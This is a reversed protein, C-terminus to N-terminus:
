MNANVTTLNPRLCVRGDRSYVLSVAGDQSVVFAAVDPSAACLRLASRHRMGFAESDLLRGPTPGADFVEFVPTPKIADLVIEAGFGVLSLDAMLVTAGDAGSLHAIFNCAESLRQTASRVELDLLRLQQFRERVTPMTLGAASEVELDRLLAARTLRAGRLSLFHEALYGPADEFCYKPVLLGRRSPMVDSEAGALVLAGGHNLRRIANVIATLINLYTLSVVQRSPEDLPVGRRALEAWLGGIGEEFLAHAGYLSEPLSQSRQLKGGFLALVATQNQYATLSGPADVRVTLGHPLAEYRSSFGHRGIAWSMGLNLLGHIRPRDGAGFQMWIATSNLEAAVALRRLEQVGYTRPNEFLWSEMPADDSARRPADGARTCCITFSVPRGEDTEQSAIYAVDLIEALQARSPLPPPELGSPAATAWQAALGDALQGPFAFDAM